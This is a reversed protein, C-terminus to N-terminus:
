ISVDSAAQANSNSYCDALAQMAQVQMKLAVIYDAAEKLFVPTDLRRSGPVLLRLAQMRSGVACGAEEDCDDRSPLGTTGMLGFETGPVKRGSDSAPNPKCPRTEVSVSRSKGQSNGRPKVVRRHCRSNRVRFLYKAFIARRWSTRGRVTMALSLDAASKVTRSRAWLRTSRQDMRRRRLVAVLNKLYIRQFSAKWVAEEGRGGAQEM